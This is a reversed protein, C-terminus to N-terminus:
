QAQSICTFVGDKDFGRLFYTELFAIVWLWFAIQFAGLNPFFCKVASM